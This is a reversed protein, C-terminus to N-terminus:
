VNQFAPKVGVRFQKLGHKHGLTQSLQVRSKIGSFQGLRHGQFNPLQQLALVRHPADHHTEQPIQRQALFAHKDARNIGPQGLAVRHKRPHAFVPGGSVMDGGVHPRGGLPYVVKVQDRLPIQPIQGLAIGLPFDVQKHPEFRHSVLVARIPGTLQAFEQPTALDPATRDLNMDRVDHLGDRFAIKVPRQADHLLRVRQRVHGPPNTRLLQLTLPHAHVLRTGDLNTLQLPKQGLSLFDHVAVLRNELTELTTGVRPLGRFLGRYSDDTRSRGPQNVREQQCVLTKRDGHELREM